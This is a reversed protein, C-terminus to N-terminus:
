TALLEEHKAFELGVFLKLLCMGADEELDDIVIYAVTGCIVAALVLSSVFILRLIVTSSLKKKECFM